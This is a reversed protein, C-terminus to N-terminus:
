TRWKTWAIPFDTCVGYKPAPSNEPKGLCVMIGHDCQVNAYCWIENTSTLTFVDVDHWFSRLGHKRMEVLADVNKAHCWLPLSKLYDVTTPYQPEDHGLFLDSGVMWVDVEVDFGADVAEKIYDPSNERDIARGTLNGRHSIIKM